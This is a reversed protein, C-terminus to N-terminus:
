MGFIRGSCGQVMVSLVSDWKRIGKSSWDVVFDAPFSLGIVMPKVNFLIMLKNHNQTNEEEGRLLVTIIVLQGEERMEGLHLIM